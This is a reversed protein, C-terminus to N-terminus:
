DVIVLSILSGGAVAGTMVQWSLQGLTSSLMVDPELIELDLEGPGKVLTRLDPLKLSSEAVLTSLNSM